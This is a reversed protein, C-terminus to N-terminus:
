RSRGPTRWERGSRASSASRPRSFTGLRCAPSRTSRHSSRTASTRARTESRPTSMDRFPGWRLPVGLPVDGGLSRPQSLVPPQARWDACGREEDLKEGRAFATQPNTIRHQVVIYM